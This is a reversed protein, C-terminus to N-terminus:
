RRSGSRSRASGRCAPGRHMGDGPFVNPLLGRDVFAAFSELLALATGIRGTVLTLGPLAIMADRGWDGFWPFGAIVSQGDSREPLPREFVFSDAALVCQEIWPPATRM